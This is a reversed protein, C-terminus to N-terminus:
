WDDFTAKHIIWGNMESSAILPTSLTTHKPQGSHVSMVWSHLSNESLLSYWPDKKLIFIEQGKGAHSDTVAKHENWVSSQISVHGFIDVM